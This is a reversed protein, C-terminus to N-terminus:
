MNIDAACSPHTQQMFTPSCPHRPAPGNLHMHTCTHPQLYSHIHTCTHPQLCMPTTNYGHLSTPSCPHRTSCRPTPSWTCARASCHIHTYTHHLPCLLTTSYPHRCTNPSYGRPAARQLIITIHTSVHMCTYLYLSAPTCTQIPLRPPQQPSRSCLPYTPRLIDHPTDTPLHPPLPWPLLRPTPFHVYCPAPTTYATGTPPRPPTMM